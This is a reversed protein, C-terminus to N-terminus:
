LNQMYFSAAKHKYVFLEKSLYEESLKLWIADINNHSKITRSMYKMEEIEIKITDKSRIIYKDKFSYVVTDAYKYCYLKSQISDYGVISENMDKWLVQELLDLERNNAYSNDISKMQSQVINLVLAAITIVIASLIMVVLMEGITFTNVKKYFGM